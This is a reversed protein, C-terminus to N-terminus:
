YQNSIYLIDNELYADYQLLPLGATGEVLSGDMLFFKSNCRLCIAYLGTSDIYVRASDSDTECPCCRELAVYEDTYNCHVIIGKVGGNITVSNGPTKLDQFEPNNLFLQINVPAYPIPNNNKCGFQFFLSSILLIITIKIIRM